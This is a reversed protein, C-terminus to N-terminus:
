FYSHKDVIFKKICCTNLVIFEVTFQVEEKWFATFVSARKTPLHGIVTGWTGNKKM